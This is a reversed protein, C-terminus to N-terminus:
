SKPLFRLCATYMAMSAFFAVLVPLLEKMELMSLREGLQLARAINLVERVIFTGAVLSVCALELHGIMKAPSGANKIEIFWHLLVVVMIAAGVSGMSM